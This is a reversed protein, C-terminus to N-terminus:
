LGLWHDRFELFAQHAECDERDAGDVVDPCYVTPLIMRAGRELCDTFVARLEEGTAERSEVLARSDTGTIWDHDHDKACQAFRRVNVVEEVYYRLNARDNSNMAVSGQPQTFDPVEGVCTEWAQQVEPLDALEDASPMAVWPRDDLTRWLAEDALALASGGEPVVDRVLVYGHRVLADM